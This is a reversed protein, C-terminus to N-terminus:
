GGSRSDRSTELDWPEEVVAYKNITCYAIYNATEQLHLEAKSKAKKTQDM